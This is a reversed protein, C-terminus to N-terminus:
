HSHRLHSPHPLANRSGDYHYWIFPCILQMLTDGQDCPRGTADARRDAFSVLGTTRLTKAHIKSAAARYTVAVHGILIRHFASEIGTLPQPGDGIDYM